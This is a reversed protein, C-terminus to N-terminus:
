RWLRRVVNRGIFKNAVRRPIRHPRRIPEADGLLRALRYLLSRTSSVSLRGGRTRDARAFEPVEQQMEAVEQQMQETIAM